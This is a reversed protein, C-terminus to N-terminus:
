KKKFKNKSENNMNKINVKKIPFKFYKSKIANDMIEVEKDDMTVYLTSETKSPSPNILDTSSIEYNLDNNTFLKNIGNTFAAKNKDSFLYTTM